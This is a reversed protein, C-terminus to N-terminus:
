YGMVRKSLKDFLKRMSAGNSPTHALIYSCFDLAEKETYEKKDKLSLLFNEIIEKQQCGVCQEMEEESKTLGNDCSKCNM